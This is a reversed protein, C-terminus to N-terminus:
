DLTDYRTHLPIRLIAEGSLPLLVNSDSGVAWQLSLMDCALQAQIGLATLTPRIVYIYGLFSMPHM